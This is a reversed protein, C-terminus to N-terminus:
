KKWDKQDAQLPDVALLPEKERMQTLAAEFNARQGSFSVKGNSPDITADGARRDDGYQYAMWLVGEEFVWYWEDPFPMVATYITENTFATMAKKYLGTVTLTGDLEAPVPNIQIAGAADGAAGRFAIQKPSGIFGTVTEIVPVIELLPETLKGNTVTSRLAYLWDAPYAMVYNQTAAVLPFTPTSGVTWRWPAYMWMISAVRNTLETYVQNLPMRKIFIKVYDLAEIPPKTSAM